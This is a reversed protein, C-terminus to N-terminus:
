QSSYRALICRPKAGTCTVAANQVSWSGCIVV